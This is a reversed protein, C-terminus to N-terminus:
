AFVNNLLIISYWLNFAYLGFSVWHCSLSMKMYTLICLGRLYVSFPKWVCILFSFCISFPLLQLILNFWACLLLCRHSFICCCFSSSFLDIFAVSFFSLSNRLVHLLFQGLLSEELLVCCRWTHLMFVVRTSPLEIIFNM